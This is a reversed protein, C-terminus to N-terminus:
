GHCQEEYDIIGDRGGSLAKQALDKVDLTPYNMVRILMPLNLGSVVHIRPSTIHCAINSPTSGYLDTLILLGEEDPMNNALKNLKPKIKNPDADYTVAIIQTKLPLKGLTKTAASVLAKGVEDHTIIIVKVTMNHVEYNGKNFTM